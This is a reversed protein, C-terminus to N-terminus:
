LGVTNGSEVSEVRSEGGGGFGSSVTDADDQSSSTSADSSGSDDSFGGDDDDDAANFLAADQQELESTTADSGDSTDATGDGEAANQLTKDQKALEESTTYDDPQRGTSIIYPADTDTTTEQGEQDSASATTNENSSGSDNTGDPFASGTVRESRPRINDNSTGSPAPAPGSSLRDRVFEPINPNGLGVERGNGGNNGNDTSGGNTAPTGGNGGSLVRSAVYAGGALLAIGSLGELISM